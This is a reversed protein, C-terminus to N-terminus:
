GALERKTRYTDKSFETSHGQTCALIDLTETESVKRFAVSGCKDVHRWAGNQQCFYRRAFKGEGNLVYVDLWEWKQDTM